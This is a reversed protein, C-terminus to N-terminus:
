QCVGGSAKLQEVIGKAQDVTLGHGMAEKVVTNFQQRDPNVMGRLVADLAQEVAVGEKVADRLVAAAQGPSAKVTATLNELSSQGIGRGSGQKGRGLEGAPFSPPPLSTGRGPEFGPRPGGRRVQLGQYLQHVATTSFRAPPSPPTLRSEVRSGFGPTDIVVLGADTRLTIGKGGEFMVAVEEGAVKGSYMSGRIGIVSSPTGVTFNEPATKTILGGMVRFVGEKVETALKGKKTESDWGYDILKLVTRNGLSFITNDKFMIQARGRAGSTITDELFLPDRAALRRVKGTGNQATVEGRVAVVTAVSEATRDAAVAKGGSWCFLALAVVALWLPALRWRAKKPGAFWQWIRGM